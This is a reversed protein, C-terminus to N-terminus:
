REAQCLKIAHVFAVRIQSAAEADRLTFSGSSNQKEDLPRGAHGEDNARVVQKIKPEHDRTEFFIISFDKLDDDRVSEPNLDALNLQYENIGYTLRSNGGPVTPLAPYMRYKIKCGSFDVAEFRAPVGAGKLSSNQPLEKKLWRLTADLSANNSDSPVSSPVATAADTPTRAAALSEVNAPTISSAFERLISMQTATLAFVTDGIKMLVQHANAMKTIQSLPVNTASMTELTLGKGPHTTRVLADPPIPARLALASTKDRAYTDKGNEQLAVYSMLGFDLVEEDAKVALRHSEDNRYLPQATYSSFELSIKDPMQKPPQNQDPYRGRLQLAMFQTPMNIVYLADSTVVTLKTDKVYRRQVHSEQAYLAPVALLALFAITYVRAFKM